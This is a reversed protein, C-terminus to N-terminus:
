TIIDILKLSADCSLVAFFDFVDFKGEIGVTISGKGLFSCHFM